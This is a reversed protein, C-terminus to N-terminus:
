NPCMYLQLMNAQQLLVQLEIFQDPTLTDVKGFWLEFHERNGANNKQLVEIERKRVRIIKNGRVIHIFNSPEKATLNKARQVLFRVNEREKMSRDPTVRIQRIEDKAFKLKTLNKMILEAEEPSDLTIRLPRPRARNQQDPNKGLRTCNKVKTPEIEISSCLQQILSM